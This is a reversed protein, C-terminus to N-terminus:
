LLLSPDIPPTTLPVPDIKSPFPIIVGGVPQPVAGPLILSAAIAETNVVTPSTPPVPVPTPTVPVPGAMHTHTRLIMKVQELETYVTTLAVRVDEKHAFDLVMFPYLRNYLARLQELAIAVVGVSSLADVIRSIAL